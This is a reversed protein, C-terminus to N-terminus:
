PWCVQASGVLCRFEGKPRFPNGKPTFLRRLTTLPSNPHLDTPKPNLLQLIPIWTRCRNLVKFDRIRPPNPKPLSYRCCRHRPSLRMDQRILLRKRKRVTKFKWGQQKAAEKFTKTIAGLDLSYEYAKGDPGYGVGKVKRYLTTGSQFTSESSSGFSFGSGSETTLEWYYLTREAENLFAASQYSIKKSGTKWSADLFEAQVAVDTWIGIQSPISMSALKAAIENIMRQKEM